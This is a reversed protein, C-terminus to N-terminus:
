VFLSLYEPYTGLVGSSILTGMVLYSIARQCSIINGLIDIRQSSPPTSAPRLHLSPWFCTRKPSANPPTLMSTHLRNKNSEYVTCFSWCTGSSPFKMLFELTGCLDNIHIYMIVSHASSM